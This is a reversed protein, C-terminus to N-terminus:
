SAWLVSYVNYCHVCACVESLELQLKSVQAELQQSLTDQQRGMEAREEAWARQKEALEARLGSM